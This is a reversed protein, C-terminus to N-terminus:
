SWKHKKLKKTLRPSYTLILILNASSPFSFSMISFPPLVYSHATRPSLIPIVSCSIFIVYCLIIVSCPIPLSALTHPSPSYSHYFLFHSHLILFSFPSLVCLPCPLVCFPCAVRAPHAPLSFLFPLVLFPFASYSILITISCSIPL